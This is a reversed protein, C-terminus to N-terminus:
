NVVEYWWGYLVYLVDGLELDVVYMLGRVFGRDVLEVIGIRFLCVWCDFKCLVGGLLEIMGLCVLFFCKCGWFLVVLNDFYDCYLGMYVGVLGIWVSSLVIYNCFFFEDLKVDGRLLLM